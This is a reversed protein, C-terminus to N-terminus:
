SMLRDEAFGRLMQALERPGEVLLLKRAVELPRRPRDGRLVEARDPLWRPPRRSGWGLVDEIVALSLEVVRRFRWSAARELLHERDVRRLLRGADVYSILVVILEHRALHGIHFLTEDIPDLHLAGPVWSAPVARRWVADFDIAARGIQIPSRHLDIAAGPRKLAVAHHFRSRAAKALRYGTATLAATAADFAHPPVLLDIDTMPRVAPEDYLWGAYSAGKFLAVPVGARALTDVAEIAIARHQEARLSAAIHDGRFHDLGARYALPGLRHRRVDDIPAPAAARGDVLAAALEALPEM